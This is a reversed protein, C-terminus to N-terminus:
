VRLHSCRQRTDTKRSALCITSSAALTPWRSLDPLAGLFVSQGIDVPVHLNSSARSVSSSAHMTQRSLSPFKSYLSSSGLLVEAGLRHYM